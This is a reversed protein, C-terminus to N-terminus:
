GAPRCVTAFPRSAQNGINWNRVIQDYVALLSRGGVSPWNPGGATPPRPTRAQGRRLPPDRKGSRTTVPNAWLRDKATALSPWRKSVRVARVQLAVFRRARLGRTSTYVVEGFAEFHFWSTVTVPQKIMRAGGAPRQPSGVTGANASTGIVFPRSTAAATEAACRIMGIRNTQDQVAEQRAKTARHWTPKDDAPPRGLPRGNSGQHRCHQVM